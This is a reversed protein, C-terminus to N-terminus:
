QEAQIQSGAQSDNRAIRATKDLDFEVRPMVHVISPKRETAATSVEGSPTPKPSTARSSSGIQM